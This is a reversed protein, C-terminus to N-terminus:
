GAPEGSGVEAQCKACLIGRPGPPLSDGCLPCTARNDAAALLEMVSTRLAPNPLPPLAEPPLRQRDELPLFPDLRPRYLGTRKDFSALGTARLGELASAGLERVGGFIHSLEIATMGHTEVLVELARAVMPTLEGRAIYRDVAYSLRSTRHVRRAVPYHGARPDALLALDILDFELRLRAQPRYLLIAVAFPVVGSARVFKIAEPLPALGTTPATKRGLRRAKEPQVPRPLHHERLLLRAIAREPPGPDGAVPDIEVAGEPLFRLRSFPSLYDWAPGRPPPHVLTIEATEFRTFPDLLAEFLTKFDRGDVTLEAAALRSRPRALYEELGRTLAAQSYEDHLGPAAKRAVGQLDDLSTRVM